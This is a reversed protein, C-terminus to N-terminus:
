NEKREFEGAEWRRVRMGWRGAYELFGRLIEAHESAAGPANGWVRSYGGGGDLGVTVVDRCGCVRVFQLATLPTGLYHVLRVHEGRAGRDEGLIYGDSDWGGVRISTAEYWLVRKLEGYPDNPDNSSDRSSGASPDNRAIKVSSACDLNLSQGREEVQGRGRAAATELAEANGYESRWLGPLVPVCDVPWGGMMARVMAGDNAFGFDCDVWEAVQNIGVVCAGPDVRPHVSVARYYGEFSPGKGIVWVVRGRLDPLRM